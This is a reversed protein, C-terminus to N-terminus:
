VPRETEHNLVLSAYAKEAAAHYKMQVSTPAQDFDARDDCRHVRYLASAVMRMMTARKLTATLTTM